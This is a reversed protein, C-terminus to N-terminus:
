PAFRSARYRGACIRCRGARRSTVLGDEHVNHLLFVRKQLASLIRDVEARDVSGAVRGGPWRACASQRAGDAAPGPVVDRHELAGQLRPRCPEADRARRRPRVRTGAQAPDAPPGEIAPECGASFLGRDRGHLCDRAPENDGDSWADLRAGSEAPTFRLVDTGRRWPACDFLHRRASPRRRHVASTRSRAARRRVVSRVRRRLCPMSACRSTLASVSPSSRRSISSAWKKSHRHNFRSSSRRCISTRAPTGRRRFCTRCWRINAAEPRRTSVRWRCCARRRARHANGLLEADDRLAPPPAAFSQLLSVPFELGAEPRTSQSTPPRAFGSSERATREGIRWVRRGRRPRSRPSRTAAVGRARPGRGRRDLAPLRAARPESVDAASQRSGGESRHRDRSHRRHGSGRDAGPLTRDQRQGDHRCLGCPDRSRPFRLPHSPRAAEGRDVDYERGLYFLGLKEFDQM